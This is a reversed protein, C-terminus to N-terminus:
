QFSNRFSNEWSTNKKIIEFNISNIVFIQNNFWDTVYIETEDKNHTLGLPTAKLALTKIVMNKKLDIVSLDQSEVNGVLAILKNKLITIGLPKKGVKIRKEVQFTDLNIISVTDEGQNTIFAKNAPSNMTFLAGLAFIVITIFFKYM